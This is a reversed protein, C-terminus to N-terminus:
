CVGVVVIFVVCKEREEVLLFGFFGLLKIGLGSMKWVGSVKVM